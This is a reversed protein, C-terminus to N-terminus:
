KKKLNRKAKKSQRKKNNREEKRKKVFENFERKHRAKREHWTEKKALGFFNKLSNISLYKQIFSRKIIKGGVLKSKKKM